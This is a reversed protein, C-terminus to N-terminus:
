ARRLLVAHDEGDHLHWEMRWGTGDVLSTMQGAPINYQQWWPTALDRDRIRLSARPSGTPTVSDGILVAGPAVVEALRALLRRNGEFSGGLGPNGCLLLVAAWPLDAPLGNADGLRVDAM